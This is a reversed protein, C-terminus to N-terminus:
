AAAEQEDPFNLIARDGHEVRATADYARAAAEPTAFSGLYRNEGNVRMQAQYRSRSRTVGRFGTAGRRDVFAFPGDVQYQYPRVIPTLFARREEDGMLLPDSTELPHALYLM